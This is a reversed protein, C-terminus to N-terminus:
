GRRVTKLVESTIPYGADDSITLMKTGSVETIRPVITKVPISLAHTRAEDYSDFQALRELNRRTPFILKVEGTEAMELAGKASVWFLRTTESNDAEIEVDGTGLDALYFRTDYIRPLRENQPFWRAFYTLQALDLSWGFKELVPALTNEQNLMDRAASATEATIDGALGIALGTEELTERVVAIQHAIEEPDDEELTETLTQALEFDADDVRGGPFVAMGGAFTMTRSRVQMLIEAAAGGGSNRFIVVTAAPIGTVVSNEPNNMWGIHCTQLAIALRLCCNRTPFNLLDRHTLLSTLWQGGCFHPMEGNRARHM